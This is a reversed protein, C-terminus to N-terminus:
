YKQNLGGYLSLLYTNNTKLDIWKNELLKIAKDSRQGSQCYFLYYTNEEPQLTEELIELPINFGGINFNKHEDSDRVDILITKEADLSQVDEWSIIHKSDLLSTSRGQHDQSFDRYTKRGNCIDCDPSKHLTICRTQLGQLIHLQNQETELTPLRTQALHNIALLAQMGGIIGPVAGIVGAENCNPTEALEPYLCRFCSHRPQILAAQGQFGLVSAYVWPINYNACVDNILYRSYFNDTCDLVLDCHKILQHANDPNLNAELSKIAIDRNAGRLKEAAIRAKNAAIDRESFLVQRQLNSLSVADGDVLTLEGVGAAALYQAVPCGLGGLGIILVKANKLRQQGDKGFSPLQIQRLYREHEQANLESKNGPASGQSHPVQKSM